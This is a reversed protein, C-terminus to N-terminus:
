DTRTSPRAYREFTPPAVNDLPCLLSPIVTEVLADNEGYATPQNAGAGPWRRRLAEQELYPAVQVAWPTSITPNGPTLGWTPPFTFNADHYNHTALALQKLNNLCKARAAAARVKQVSPLLLGILVAIIAIVVLLEILTFGSQRRRESERPVM